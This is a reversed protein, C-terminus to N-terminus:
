LTNNHHCLIESGIWYKEGKVKEGCHWMDINFALLMGRKPIISLLKKGRDSFFTTQGGDYDDNLYILYTFRSRKEGEIIGTDTHLGFGENNKYNSLCIVDSSKCPYWEAGNKDMYHEDLNPGLKNYFTNALDQDVYKGNYFNANVFQRLKSKQKNKILNVYKDCEQETLFNDITLIDRKYHYHTVVSNTAINSM